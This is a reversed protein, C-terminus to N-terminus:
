LWQLRLRSGFVCNKYIPPKLNTIIIWGRKALRLWELISHMNTSFTSRSIVRCMWHICVVLLM